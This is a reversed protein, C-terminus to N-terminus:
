NLQKSRRFLKKKEMETEPVFPLWVTIFALILITCLFPRVPPWVAPIVSSALVSVKPDTLLLQSRVEPLASILKSQNSTKHFDGQTLHM